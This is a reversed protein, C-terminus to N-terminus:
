VKKSSQDDLWNLGLEIKARQKLVDTNTINVSNKMENFQSEVEIGYGSLVLKSKIDYGIEKGTFAIVTPIPSNICDDLTYFLKQDATGSSNQIKAEIGFTKDKYRLVIDLLRKKGVFRNGLWVERYVELKPIAWNTKIEDILADRFLDGTKPKKPKNNKAM